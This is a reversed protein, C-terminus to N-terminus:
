VRKVKRMKTYNGGGVLSLLLKSRSGSRVAVPISMYFDIVEHTDVLFEEGSGLIKIHFETSQIEKPIGIDDYDFRQSENADMIRFEERFCPFKVFHDIPLEKPLTEGSAVCELQRARTINGENILSVFKDKKLCNLTNRTESEEAIIEFVDGSARLEVQYVSTRLIQCSGIDEENHSINAVFFGQLGGNLIAEAVDNAEDTNLEISTQTVNQSTEIDRLFRLVVFVLIFAKFMIRSPLM